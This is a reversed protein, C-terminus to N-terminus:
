PAMNSYSRVYSYFVTGNSQDVTIFKQKDEFLLKEEADLPKWWDFGGIGYHWMSYPSPEEVAEKDGMQDKIFADITQEDAKFKVYEGYVEGEVEGVEAKDPELIFCVETAHAPYDVFKRHADFLSRKEAASLSSDPGVVLLESQNDKLFFAILVVVMVVAALIYGVGRRRPVQAFRTPSPQPDDPEPDSTPKEPMCGLFFM